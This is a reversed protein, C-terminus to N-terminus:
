SSRSQDIGLLVSDQRAAYHIAKIAMEGKKKAACHMPTEGQDDKASPEAGLDM